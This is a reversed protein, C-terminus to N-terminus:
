MGSPVLEYEIRPQYVGPRVLNWTLPIRLQLERRWGSARAGGAIRTWELGLPRFASEELSWLLRVPDAGPVAVVPSTRLRLEWPGNSCLQLTVPHSLDVFGAQLDSATIVPATVVQPEVQLRRLPPVVLEVEIRATQAGAAPVPVFPSAIPSAFPLAFAFLLAAAAPRVRARPRRIRSRWGDLRGARM